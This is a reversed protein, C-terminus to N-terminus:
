FKQLIVLKSNLIKMMLKKVLTIYPNSKVDALKM